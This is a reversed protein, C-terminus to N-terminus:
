TNVLLAPFRDFVGGLILRLAHIGTEIHWGAGAISLFASVEPALRRLLRRGSAQASDPSAPLAALAEASEFLLWFFKDDLYRGNVHGNILAGVFGLDRVTRELERAAAAPDLLRLTAFGLFRDPACCSSIKKKPQKGILCSACGSSFPM